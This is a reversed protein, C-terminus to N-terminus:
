VNGGSVTLRSSITQKIFKKYMEPQQTKFASTDFREQEFRSWTVKYKGAVGCKADGLIAKFNNKLIDKEKELLSIQENLSKYRAAEQELNHMTITKETKNGYLSILVDDESEAGTPAPLRNALVNEYWFRREEEILNAIFTENRPVERFDFKVGILVPIFFRQFGMVAMYHQVQAYYNDPVNDDDWKKAMFPSATKIELGCVGHKPHDVFGDLNALMFFYERSQYM